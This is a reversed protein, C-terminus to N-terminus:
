AEKKISASIIRFIVILTLMAVLIVGIIKPLGLQKGGTNIMNDYTGLSAKSIKLAAIGDSLFGGLIDVDGTKQADNASSNELDQILTNTENLSDYFEIETENYSTGYNTAVSSIFMSILVAALTIM